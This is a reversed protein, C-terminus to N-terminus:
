GGEYSKTTLSSNNSLLHFDTSWVKLYPDYYRTYGEKPGAVCSIYLMKIRVFSKWFLRVDWLSAAFLGSLELQITKKFNLNQYSNIDIKVQSMCVLLLVSAECFGSKSCFKVM